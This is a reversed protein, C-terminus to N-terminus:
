LEVDGMRVQCRIFNYKIEIHKSKGHYRPNKAMCIASQIDEFIVLTGESGGNLDAILKCMWVAEQAVSSLAVYEAETTSLAVCSQKNSRWSVAFGGIQFM